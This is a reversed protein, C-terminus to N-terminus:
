FVGLFSSIGSISFFVNLSGTRIPLVPVTGGFGTRSADPLVLGHLGSGLLAGISQALVYPVVHRWSFSGAVALGITVAPNFHAERAPRFMYILTALVGGFVIAPLLHGAMGAARGTWILTGCGAFVLAFTGVLESLYRPLRSSERQTHGTIM